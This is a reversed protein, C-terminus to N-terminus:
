SNNMDSVKEKLWIKIGFQNLKIKDIDDCIKKFNYNIKESSINTNLRILENTIRLFDFFSKKYEEVMLKERSIYHRFNDIMSIAQEFLQKEFYIQLLLTKVQIKILFNPFNAKTLLDLAKDLNGKKYNIIGYCFNLTSDKEETLLHNFESIYIEAWEFENVRLAIKVHNLFDPYLIKGLVITGRDYNEKSLLFHERMFDTRGEVNYVYACYSAMHLFIMYRDGANLEDFYKNKLKKLEFFYKENIETELLIINFYILLTPNDENSNKKLYELVERFMNMKFENKHQQNEHLMINYFKLLRIVSYTLFYDLEKQFFDLRSNPDKPIRFSLEEETLELNKLIFNEDKIKTENLKKSYVKLTQEFINDLSRERLQELLFKGNKESHDRYSLFTLYEKGLMLLDSIINKIKYYDYKEDPFVKKFAAEQTLKNSTFEPYFEKLYDYLAIVKKNKNFVPSNVFDKFERIEPPTLSKILRVLKTNLM